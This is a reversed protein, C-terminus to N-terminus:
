SSSPTTSMEGKEEETYHEANQLSQCKTVKLTHQTIKSNGYEVSESMSLLIKVHMNENHSRKAHLTSLCPVKM